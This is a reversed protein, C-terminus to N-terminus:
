NRLLKKYTKMYNKIVQKETLEYEFKEEFCTLALSTQQPLITKGTSRDYYKELLQIYAYGVAETLSKSSSAAIGGGIVTGIGPVFKLATSLSTKVKRANTAMKIVGAIVAIVQGNSSSNVEFESNITYLLKSQVAAVLAIESGPFPIVSVTAAANSATAVKVRASKIVADLKIQMNVEQAKRLVEIHKQLRQKEANDKADLFCNETLNLLEDLGVTPVNISSFSYATSNVRVYRNQIFTKHQKNINQKAETYFVDGDEFQTNTFIVVTPIGFKKAINILDHERDEIRKSSEKICLWVVHPAEDNDNFDFAEQFGSEIDKILMDRTAEYDKAEIGKTDWLTLGKSKIKIKELYQTIPKGAGSEVVDSGFVANILSSKGVGTAGFLVVNFKSRNGDIEKKAEEADFRQTKKDFSDGLYKSSNM